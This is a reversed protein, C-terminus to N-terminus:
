RAGWRKLWSQLWNFKEHQELPRGVDIALDLDSDRRGEAKALSGFLIALRIIPHRDLVQKIGAGDTMKLNDLNSM